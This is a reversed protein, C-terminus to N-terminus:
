GLNLNKLEGFLMQWESKLDGSEPQVAARHYWYDANQLDGEVRHLYAHIRYSMKTNIDQVIRHASDWNGDRELEISQLLRKTQDTM